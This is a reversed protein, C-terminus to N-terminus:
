ILDQWKMFELARMFNTPLPAVLDFQQGGLSFELRGAHLFHHEQTLSAIDVSVGLNARQTYRKDGLIPLGLDALHVRIQHSRGTKPMCRILSIGDQSAVVEFSTSAKKGGSRVARVMGTKRDIPALHNDVAFERDEPVGAVMAYYTKQMARERFMDTLATASKGDRAILLVGSTEKDLRHVLILKGVNKETESLLKRLLPVVHMVAQDRTEQSPLGPPKNVAVFQDNVVVLDEQRFSFQAAKIKKLSTESYEIRLDDGAKVKRSAVRMRKKNVYVGGADIIARIRRRSLGLDFGVIALDIREGDMHAPIVFQWTKM